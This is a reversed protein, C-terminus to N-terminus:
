AFSTWRLRMIRLAIVSQKWTKIWSIWLNLPALSSKSMKALMILPKATGRRSSCTTNKLLIIIGKCLTWVDLKYKSLKIRQEISKRVLSEAKAIGSKSPIRLYQGKALKKLSVSKKCSNVSTSSNQSKSFSLGSIGLNNLLIAFHMEPECKCTASLAMHKNSLSLKM